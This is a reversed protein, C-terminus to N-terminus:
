EATWETLVWERSTLPFNPQLLVYRLQRSWQVTYRSYNAEDRSWRLILRTFVSSQVATSKFYLGYWVLALESERWWFQLGIKQYQRQGVLVHTQDVIPFYTYRKICSSIWSSLCMARFCVSIHQELVIKRYPLTSSLDWLFYFLIRFPLIKACTVLIQLM